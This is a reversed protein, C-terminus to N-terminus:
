ANTSRSGEDSKPVAAGTAALAEAQRHKRESVIAAHLLKGASTATQSSAIPLHPMVKGVPVLSAIQSAPVDPADPCFDIGQDDRFVAVATDGLTGVWTETVHRMRWSGSDVIFCQISVLFYDSASLSSAMELGSATCMTQLHAQSEGANVLVTTVVWPKTTEPWRFAGSALEWLSPSYSANIMLAFYHLPM